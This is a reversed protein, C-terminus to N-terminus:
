SSMSPSVADFAAQGPACADQSTDQGHAEVPSPLSLWRVENSGARTVSRQAVNELAATATLGASPLMFALTACARFHRVSRMDHEVRDAARSRDVHFPM